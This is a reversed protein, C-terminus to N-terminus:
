LTVRWAEGLARGVRNPRFRSLRVPDAPALTVPARNELERQMLAALTRRRAIERKSAKAFDDVDANVGIPYREHAAVYRQQIVIPPGVCRYCNCGGTLGMHAVCGVDTYEYVTGWSAPTPTFGASAIM